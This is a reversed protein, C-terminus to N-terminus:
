TKNQQNNHHHVLRLTYLRLGISTCECRSIGMGANDQASDKHIASQVINMIM